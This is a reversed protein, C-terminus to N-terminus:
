RTFSSAIPQTIEVERNEAMARIDDTRFKEAIEPPFLDFDTKGLADSAPIGTIDANCQNWIIFRFDEDADKCFVGMPLHDVVSKFLEKHHAFAEAVQNM